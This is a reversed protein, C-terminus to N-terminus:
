RISDISLFLGSNTLWDREHHEERCSNKGLPARWSEHKAFWRCKLVIRDVTLHTLDPFTVAIRPRNGRFINGETGSNKTV